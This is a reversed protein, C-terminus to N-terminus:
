QLTISQMINLAALIEEYQDKTLGQEKYDDVLLETGSRNAFPIYGCTDVSAMYEDIDLAKAFEKSPSQIPISAGDMDVVVLLRDGLSSDVSYEKCACYQGGISLPRWGLCYLNEELAEYM